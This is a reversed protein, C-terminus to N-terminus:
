VRADSLNNYYLFGGIVSVVSVFVSLEAVLIGPIEIAFLTIAIILVQTLIVAVLALRWAKLQNVVILEDNLIQFVQHNSKM